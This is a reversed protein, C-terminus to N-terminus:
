GHQWGEVKWEHCLMGYRLVDWYRSPFFTMRRQRVERTMGAEECAELLSLDYGPLILSIRHLNLEEFAYRLGLLIAEKLMGRCDPDGIAVQLNGLRHLWFVDSVRVFGLLRNDERHRLSFHYLSNGEQMEKLLEEHKKKIEFATLPRVPYERYWRAYTLDYSWASEIEPEKELDFSGMRLNDSEFLSSRMM